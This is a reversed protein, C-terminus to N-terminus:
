NSYGSSKRFDSNKEIRREYMEVVAEGGKWGELGGGGCVCMEEGGCGNSRWKGESFLRGPIDGSHPMVLELLVPCM